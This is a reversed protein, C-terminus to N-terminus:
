GKTRVGLRYDAFTISAYRRSGAALHAGFVSSKASKRGTQFLRCYRATSRHHAGTRPGSTPAVSAVFFTSM